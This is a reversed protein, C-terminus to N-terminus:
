SSTAPDLGLADLVVAQQQEVHASAKGEAPSAREPRSAHSLWLQRPVVARLRPGIFTLAGMNRPEEQAWVVQRLNRYREILASLAATPFPYLLEQRAVAVHVAERRREHGQIDYYLKGSCLVLRKIQEDDEVTPDPLVHQFGGETLEAVTSTARPHRLLSKPTLVIMPREPRRLAQRRLLHFYQAPTTPYVVRMNEEACLQLFREIRASSHEPGQGEYGHPLLLTLRSYQGWKTLGSSLFQDIMVQAVNVFDGFQAEWIIVDTDAGVSYGYEFGVVATETLPSNYIEFRTDALHRLPVFERGTEVDHLVMHRHSFTGRETDQGTLRVPIGDMLLSGFALTEAQGWDIEENPSFDSVRGTLQRWLKPHPQFGEPVEVTAANVRELADLVVGTTKPVVVVEREEDISDDEVPEYDRVHDQVDRLKQAIDERLEAVLEDTIVGQEILRNSYIEQVTPHTSIRDYLLPQTYAPEDGENHGHRRYGVLDIVFDDQFHTRFAMALRVAALCAEPDDANVHVVPIGYGKALDSAYYTSRGDRPDTTFGVQNNVILHITGGVNYAELRAMNLTEAVVGEAAFAADGHILVPVVAHCDPQSGKLVSDFQKSRAMGLVVPNVFELHSPNPALTVAIDGVGKVTRKGRAGHHYKVDGTGHIDLQGGKFSPGEFEALLEGYSVGVTHTLVNLRGRHAMGLVVERGGAKAAQEIVLDLMPVLADNGELSFRKQGFYARHLFQELGEAESIRRLLALKDDASLAPRHVGSEVHDWLWDVKVHDDLHEFEYGVTDAYIAGLDALADAVSRETDDDELVLSAPLQSLEETSTGYFAPSLQPHGPPESGLPDLRALQHGHDRFAQVLATARSVAPLITRLSAAAGAALALEPPEVALDPPVTGTPPEPAATPAPPVPAAEPPATVPPAEIAESPAAIPPPAAETAEPPAAVHPAETTAVSQAAAPPRSELLPSSAAPAEIVLPEAAHQPTDAARPPSSPAPATHPPAVSPATPGAPPGVATTPAQIASAAGENAQDPTAAESDLQDPVMLGEAIAVEAGNEFLERWEDPVSDPNRAYEEFMAQAYAANQSDFLTDDTV